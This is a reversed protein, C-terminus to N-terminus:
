VKKYTKKAESSAKIGKVNPHSKRFAALHEMWPNKKKKAM